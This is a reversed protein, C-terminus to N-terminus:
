AFTQRKVKIAEKLLQAMSLGKIASKSVRSVPKDSLVLIILRVYSIKKQHCLIRSERRCKQRRRQRERRM